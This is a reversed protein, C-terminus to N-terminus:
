QIQMSQYVCVGILNGNDNYRYQWTYGHPDNYYVYEDGGQINRIEFCSLETLNMENLNKM